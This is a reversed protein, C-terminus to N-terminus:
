KIDTNNKPSFSRSVSDDVFTVPSGKLPLEKEHRPKRLVFAATLSHVFQEFSVPEFIFDKQSIVTQEPTNHFDLPVGPKNFVHRYLQVESFYQNLVSYWQKPSWINLHYPNELDAARLEANTIPPVAVVIVGDPKVLRGIIRLFAQVDPIHEIVNSSFVVDFSHRSFGSINQLDMKKFKVNSRKFYHQCFKVAHEEVDIGWVFRAGNDALYATGYGAGSGADLVNANRCFRLAFDYISLHAYYCDNPYLHTVREGGDSVQEVLRNNRSLKKKVQSLFELPGSTVIIRTSLIGRNYLHRRKTGIPMIRDILHQYKMLIKWTTSIYIDNLKITNEALSIELNRIQVDKNKIKELLEAIQKDRDSIIIIKEELKQELELKEQSIKEINISMVRVEYELEM